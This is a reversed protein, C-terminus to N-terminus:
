PPLDSAVKLFILCPKCSSRSSFFLISFLNENAREWTAVVTSNQAAPPKSDGQLIAAVSQRHFSFVVRLKDKYDWFHAKDTGDFLPCFKLMAQINNTDHEAMIHRRHYPVLGAGNFQRRQQFRARREKLGRHVTHRVLRVGNCYRRQQFNRVKSENLGCHVTHLALRAGSCHRRQQFNRVRSENLGCHVTHLALRAGNCDRRQQFNSVRSENLGYHVTHLALRAGNCHRRQQFNHVRSENLGYHVTHLALRVGNCHRRQQFNHM